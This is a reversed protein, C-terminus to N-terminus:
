SLGTEDSLLSDQRLSADDLSELTYRSVVGSYSSQLTPDSPDGNTPPSPRGRSLTLEPSELSVFRRVIGIESDCWNTVDEIGGVRERKEEEGEKGKKKKGKRGEKGSVKGM